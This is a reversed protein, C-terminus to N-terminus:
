VMATAHIIANRTYLSANSNQFIGVFPSQPADSCDTGKDLFNIKRAM